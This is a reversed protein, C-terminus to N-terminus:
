TTYRQKARNGHEAKIDHTCDWETDTIRSVDSWAVLEDETATDEVWKPDPNFMKQKM